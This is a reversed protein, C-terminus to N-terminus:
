IRSQESSNSLTLNTEIVCLDKYYKTFFGVELDKVRQLALEKDKILKTLQTKNESEQFSKEELLDSLRM